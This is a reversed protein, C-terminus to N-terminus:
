NTFSTNIRHMKFSPCHLSGLSDLVTDYINFGHNHYFAIAPTNFVRVKLWVIKTDNFVELMKKLLLSGGGQGQFQPDVYLARIFGYDGNRVARIYGIVSETECVFTYLRTTDQEITARWGEEIKKMDVFIESVMELSIGYEQNPYTELWASRTIETIRGADELTAKRIIM